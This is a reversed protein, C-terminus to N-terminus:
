QPLIRQKLSILVDKFSPLINSLSDLKTNLNKDVATIEPTEKGAPFLKEYFAVFQDDELGETQQAKKRIKEFDLALYYSKNTGTTNSGSAGGKYASDVIRHFYGPLLKDLWSMDAAPQTSASAKKNLMYVLQDRLALGYNFTNAFRESSNAQIFAQRYNSIVKALDDGFFTEIRKALLNDSLAMAASNGDLVVNVTAAYVWGLQGTESKVYLWPDNYRVGRLKVPALVKSIQHQWEIHSNAALKEIVASDMSPSQRMNVTNLAVELIVPSTNEESGNTDIITITEDPEKADESSCSVLFGCTFILLIWKIM